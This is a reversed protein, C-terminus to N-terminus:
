NYNPLEVRKSYNKCKKFPLITVKSMLLRQRNSNLIEHKINREKKITKEKKKEIFRLSLHCISYLKISCTISKTTYM